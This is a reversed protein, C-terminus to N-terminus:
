GSGLLPWLLKVSAVSLVVGLLRRLWPPPITHSGCWAGVSGCTMVVAAMPAITLPSPLVATGQRLGLGLLGALSNVLIFAASTAAAQRPPLWGRLIMWPTLFIGGGTGTLGALLGLVAGTTALAAPAPVGRLPRDLQPNWWLRAASCLLVAALLPQLVPAPLTIAGGLAAAPLSGLVLPPFLVARFHGARHFQLSALSAVLVNLVLAIPRIASAPLGALALVAIYGSAGAHGVTAYLGAVLGLGPLVLALNM